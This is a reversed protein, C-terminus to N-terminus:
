KMESLGLAVDDITVLNADLSVIEIFTPKCNHVPRFLRTKEEEKM